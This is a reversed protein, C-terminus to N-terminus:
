QDTALTQLFLSAWEWRQIDLLVPALVPSEGHSEVLDVFNAPDYETAFPQLLTATEAPIEALLARLEPQLVTWRLGSARRWWYKSNWFDGEQRHMVAHWASGFSTPVDQCLRHASDLEGALLHVAALLCDRRQGPASHQEVTQLFPGALTTNRGRPQLQTMCGPLAQFLNQLEQPIKQPSIQLM